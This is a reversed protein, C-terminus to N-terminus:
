NIDDDSNQELAALVAIWRMGFLHSVQREEREFWYEAPPFGL